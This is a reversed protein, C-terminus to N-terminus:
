DHRSKNGPHGVRTGNESLGGSPSVGIASVKFTAIFEDKRQSEFDSVMAKLRGICCFNRRDAPLPNSLAYGPGGV